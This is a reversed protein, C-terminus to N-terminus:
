VYDKAFRNIYIKFLDEETKADVVALYGKRIKRKYSTDGNILDDAAKMAQTITRVTLDM